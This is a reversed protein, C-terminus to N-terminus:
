EVQEGNRVAEEGAIRLDDDARAHHHTAHGRLSAPALRQQGLVNKLMVRFKSIAFKADIEHGAAIALAGNFPSIHQHRAAIEQDDAETFARVPIRDGLQGARQAFDVGSDRGDDSDLQRLLSREHM